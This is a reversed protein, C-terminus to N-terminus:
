TAVRHAASCVRSVDHAVARGRGEMQDEHPQHAGPLRRHPLPAGLREATREDVGVLEDLRARTLGDGLQERGHALDPEPRHFTLRDRIGARRRDRDDDGATAARHEVGVVPTMELRRTM